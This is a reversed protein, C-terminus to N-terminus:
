RAARRHRRPDQGPIKITVIRPAFASINQRSAPLAERMKELIHLPRPAGARARMVETTIGGVKIDMQLATISDATGAVKFDM